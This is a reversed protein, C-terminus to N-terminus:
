DHRNLGTNPIGPTISPDDDPNPTVELTAPAITLGGALITLNYNQTLNNASTCASEDTACITFDRSTLRFPYTGVNTGSIVSLDRGTFILFNGDPLEISTSQNAASLETTATRNFDTVSWGSVTYETGTWTYGATNLKIILETQPAPDQIYHLTFAYNQNILTNQCVSSSGLHETSSNVTWYSNSYGPIDSATPLNFNTGFYEGWTSNFPVSYQLYNQTDTYNVTGSSQLNAYTFGAGAPLPVPNGDTDYATSDFNFTITANQVYHLTFIYDDDITQNPDIDLNVPNTNTDLTWYTTDYGPVNIVTPVTDTPADFINGWTTGSIVTRETYNTTDAALITQTTSAITQTFGASAPLPTTTDIQFRVTVYDRPTIPQPKIDPQQIVPPTATDGGTTFDKSQDVMVDFIANYNAPDMYFLQAPDFLKDATPTTTGTYSPDAVWKYISLGSSYVGNDASDQCNSATVSIPDFYDASPLNVVYGAPVNVNRYQGSFDLDCGSSTDHYKLELHFQMLRPENGNQYNGYFASLTIDRAPMTLQMNSTAPSSNNPDSTSYNVYAMGKAASNTSTANPDATDVWAIAGSPYNPLTITSGAEVTATSIINGNADKYTITYSDAAFVKILPVLFITALILSLSTFLILFLRRAKPTKFIKASQKVM